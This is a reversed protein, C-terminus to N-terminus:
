PLLWPLENDHWRRARCPVEAKLAMDSLGMIKMELQWANPLPGIM